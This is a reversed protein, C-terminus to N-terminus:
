GLESRMAPGAEREETRGQGTQRGPGLRHRSCALFSKGWCGKCRPDGPGPVPDEGDKMETLYVKGPLREQCCLGLLSQADEVVAWVELRVAQGTGPTQLCRTPTSAETEGLGPQFDLAM